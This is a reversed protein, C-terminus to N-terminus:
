KIRGKILLVVLDNVVLTQLDGKEKLRELVVEFYAILISAIFKAGLGPLGFIQFLSFKDGKFALFPYPIDKLYLAGTQADWNNYIYIDGMFDWQIKQPELPDAPFIHPILKLVGLLLKRDPIRPFNSL